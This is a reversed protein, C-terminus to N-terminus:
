PLVDHERHDGQEDGDRYGQGDGQQYAVRPEARGYGDVDAVDPAGHWAKRDQRESRGNRPIPNAVARTASVASAMGGISM